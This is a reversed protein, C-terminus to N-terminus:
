SYRSNGAPVSTCRRGKATLRTPEKQEVDSAADAHHTKSSAAQKAEADEAESSESSGAVNGDVMGGGLLDSKGSMVQDSGSSFKSTGNFVKGDATVEIANNDIERNGSATTEAATKKGSNKMRRGRRAPVVHDDTTGTRASAKKIKPAVARPSDVTSTHQSVDTCHPITITHFPSLQQAPPMSKKGNGEGTVQCVYFCSCVCFCTKIAM